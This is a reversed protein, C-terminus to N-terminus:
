FYMINLNYLYVDEAEFREKDIKDEIINYWIYLICLVINYPVM